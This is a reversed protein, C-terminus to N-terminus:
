MIADVRALLVPDEAPSRQGLYDRRRFNRKDHPSSQWSEDAASLRNILGGGTLARVLRSTM